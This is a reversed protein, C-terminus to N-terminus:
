GLHNPILPQLEKEIQLYLRQLSFIFNLGLAPNLEASHLTTPSLLHLLTAKFVAVLLPLSSSLPNLAPAIAPMAIAHTTTTAAIIAKSAKKRTM